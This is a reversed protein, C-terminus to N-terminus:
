LPPLKKLLRINSKPISLVDGVVDDECWTQSVFYHGKDEGILFGLSVPKINIYQSTRDRWGHFSTIDEWYVVVPVAGKAKIEKVLTHYMKSETSEKPTKKM